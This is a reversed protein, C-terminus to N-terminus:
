EVKRLAISYKGSEVTVKDGIAFGIRPNTLCSVIDDANDTTVIKSFLLRQVAIESNEELIHKVYDSDSIVTIGPDSLNFIFINSEGLKDFFEQPLYFEDKSVTTTYPSFNYKM